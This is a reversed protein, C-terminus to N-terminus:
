PERTEDELANSGKKALGQNHIRLTSLSEASPQSGNMTNM